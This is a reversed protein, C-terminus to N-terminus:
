RKPLSSNIWVCEGNYNSKDPINTYWDLASYIKNTRDEIRVYYSNQRLSSWILPFVIIKDLTSRMQM